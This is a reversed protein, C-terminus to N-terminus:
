RSGGDGRSLTERWRPFRRSQSQFSPQADHSHGSVRINEHASSNCVIGALCLQCGIHEPVRFDHCHRQRGQALKHPRQRPYRRSGPSITSAIRRRTPLAVTHTSRAATSAPRSAKSAPRSKASPTMANSPRRRPPTTKVLKSRVATSNIAAVPRSVCRRDAPYRLRASSIFSGPAPSSRFARVEHM